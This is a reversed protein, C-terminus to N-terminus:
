VLLQYGEEGIKSSPEFGKSKLAQELFSDRGAVGLLIRNALRDKAQDSGIIRPRLNCTEQLFKSFSSIAFQESVEAISSHVIVTRSTLVFDKGTLTLHRPQPIVASVLNNDEMSNTKDSGTKKAKDADILFKLRVGPVM